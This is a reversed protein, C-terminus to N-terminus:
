SSGELDIKPFDCLRKGHLRMNLYTLGWASGLFFPVSVLYSGVYLIVENMSSLTTGDSLNGKNDVVRLGATWQEPGYVWNILLYHILDYTVFSSWITIVVVGLVPWGMLYHEYAATRTMVPTAPPSQTPSSKRVPAYKRVIFLAGAAQALCILANTFGFAFWDALPISGDIGMLWVLIPNHIHITADLAYIAPLRYLDLGVFVAFLALFLAQGKCRKSASGAFVTVTAGVFVTSLLCEFIVTALIVAM